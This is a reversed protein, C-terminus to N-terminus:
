AEITKKRRGIILGFGGMLALLLSSPEPVSVSDRSTILLNDLAVTVSSDSSVGSLWKGLSFRVRSIDGSASYFDGSYAVSDNLSITWIDAALDIDIDFDMLEDEKYNGFFNNASATNPNFAEMRGAKNFHLNQITPADFLVAFQYWSDKLNSIQLDFSFQYNDYGKGLEFWVQDYLYNSTNGATNFVLPQDTLEGYSSEVMPSGFNINSPTDGNSNVVPTSGASHIPSNFNVDYHTIVGANVGGCISALFGAVVVRNRFM